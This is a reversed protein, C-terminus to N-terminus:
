RGFLVHASLDFTSVAKGPEGKVYDIRSVQRWGAELGGRLRGRGLRVGGFAATTSAGHSYGESFSSRGYASDVRPSRHVRALGYAGGGYIGVGRVIPVELEFVPMLSVVHSRSAQTMEGDVGGHFYKLTHTHVQLYDLRVGLGLHELARYRVGATVFPRAGQETFAAGYYFDEPGDVAARGLGISGEWHGGIEAAEVSSSRVLLGAVFGITALAKTM